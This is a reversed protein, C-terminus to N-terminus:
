RRTELTVKADVVKDGRHVKVPVTDGPKKTRLAATFDYLNTIPMGDFEFLVDGAKLGAKMAPSNPMVDAFRFGNPVEAFDPMSGFWAGYGGGGGGAPRPPAIKVYKPRDPADALRTAVEAIFDLLQSAQQSDIKDWTDTPRHYDAHLGSFFFLVPVDRPTFSAHDSSGYGAQESLDLTLKYKPRVEELLKQFTSGTGTGGVYVKGDRIRGIMDLNIMAVCQDLPLEPHNVYYSSGLLGLEEAAFTIFLIGRKPKPGHAFYRALELVGATGSANDDAGPHPKGKQDGTALSNQEGLGLHDYHAGIILYESSEGPLWAAVNHVTKNQREVDTEVTVKVSDPLAFSQPKLEKDIAAVLDGLNKGAPALWESAVVGRVQVFPIGPTNPGVTRAFKDVADNDGPHNPLDNVLVVAAAGHIKANAAKNDLGAHMTLAKGGFPSKDDNEQPEHRLILVIKGKVDLNAYDDYHYENATIGYGAFVVGSSVTGSSSFNFPNFDDTVKLTHTGGNTTWEVRNKSGMRANVTVSFAQEYGQGDLPKLGDQKFQKEIYSAAKELEPTGSGRGKLEPSALFKVHGIYRQPDTGAAALLGVAALAGALLLRINKPM